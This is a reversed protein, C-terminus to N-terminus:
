SLSPPRTSPTNSPTPLTHTTTSVYTYQILLTCQTLMTWRILLTHTVYWDPKEEQWEAEEETEAPRQELLKGHKHKKKRGMAHFVKFCSQCYQNNCDHCDVAAPSRTCVACVHAYELFGVWRHLARKGNAHMDVYCTECYCDDCEARTRELM